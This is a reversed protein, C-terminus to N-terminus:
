GIQGPSIRRIRAMKGRAPKVPVDRERYFEATKRSRPPTHPLYEARYDPQLNQAGSGYTQQRGPKGPYMARDGGRQATRNSADGPESKHYQSCATFRFGCPLCQVGCQPGLGDLHREHKEEQPDRQRRVPVDDCDPQDSREDGRDQNEGHRYPNAFLLTSRPNGAIAASCSSVGPEYMPWWRANKSCGTPCPPNQVSLRSESSVDRSSPIRPMPNMQHTTRPAVEPTGPLRWAKTSSAQSNTSLCAFSMKWPSRLNMAGAASVTNTHTSSIFEMSKRGTSMMAHNVCKKAGCPNRMTGVASTLVVKARASETHSSM